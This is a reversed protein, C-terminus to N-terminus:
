FRFVGYILLVRVEGNQKKLRVRASASVMLNCLFESNMRMLYKYYM